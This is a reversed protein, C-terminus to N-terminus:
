TEEGAGPLVRMHRQPAAVAMTGSAPARSTCRGCRLTGALVVHDEGGPKLELMGDGVKDLTGYPSSWVRSVDGPPGCWDYQDGDEVHLREQPCELRVLLAKRCVRTGNRVFAALTDTSRATGTVEAWSRARSSCRPPPSRATRSSRCPDRGCLAACGTASRCSVRLAAALVHSRCSSFTPRVAENVTVTGSGIACPGIRCAASCRRVASRCIVAPLYVSAIPSVRRV